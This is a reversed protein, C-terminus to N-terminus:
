TDLGIANHKDVPRGLANWADYLGLAQRPPLSPMTDVLEQLRAQAKALIEPTLTQVDFTQFPQTIMRTSAKVPISSLPRNRVRGIAQFYKREEQDTEAQMRREHQEKLVDRLADINDFMMSSIIETLTEPTEDGASFGIGHLLQVLKRFCDIETCSIQKMESM